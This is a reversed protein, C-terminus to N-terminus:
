PKYALLAYINIDEDTVDRIDQYLTKEVDDLGDIYEQNPREWASNDSLHDPRWRHVPVIGPETLELGNGTVFREIQERSRLVFTLGREELSRAVRTISEANLDATLHSLLLYSGPPLASVLRRVADYAQEDPVFHLV